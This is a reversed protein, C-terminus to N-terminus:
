EMYKILALVFKDINVMGMKMDQSRAYNIAGRIGGQDLGLYYVTSYALALQVVVMAPLFGEVQEASREMAVRLLSLNKQRLYKDM